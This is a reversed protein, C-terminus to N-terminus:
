SKFWDRLDCGCLNNVSINEIELILAKEVWDSDVANLVVANEQKALAAFKRDSRDFGCDILSQPLNEYEGDGRRPLEVREIRGPASNIVELYFRDGVGPQGRPNLQRRYEDQISGDIDLLICHKEIAELLAQIAKLQCSITPIRDGRSSPPSMQDYNAVVPVNTDVVVRWRSRNRKM